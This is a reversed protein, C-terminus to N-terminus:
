SESASEAEERPNGYAPRKDKQLQEWDTERYAHLTYAIQEDLAAPNYSFILPHIKYEWGALYEQLHTQLANRDEASEAYFMVIGGIEGIFHDHYLALPLRIDSCIQNIIQNASSASIDQPALAYLM